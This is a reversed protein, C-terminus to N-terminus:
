VAKTEYSVTWNTGVVVNVDSFGKFLTAMVQPHARADESTAYISVVVERRQYGCQGRTLAGTAGAVDQYGTCSIGAADLAKILDAATAYRGGAPPPAPTTVPATNTPAAPQSPDADGGCGALAFVAATLVTLSRAM